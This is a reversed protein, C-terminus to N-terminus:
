SRRGGRIYFVRPQQDFVQSGSNHREGRDRAAVITVLRAALRSRAAPRAITACAGHSDIM